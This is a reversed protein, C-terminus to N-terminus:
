SKQELVRRLFEKEDETHLGIRYLHPDVKLLFINGAEDTGGFWCGTIPPTIGGDSGYDKRVLFFTLGEQMYYFEVESLLDAFPLAVTEGDLYPDDTREYRLRAKGARAPLEPIKLQTQGPM